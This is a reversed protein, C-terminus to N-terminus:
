VGATKSGKFFIQETVETIHALFFFFLFLFTNKISPFILELGQQYYFPNM